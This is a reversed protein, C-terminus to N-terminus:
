EEARLVKTSHNEAYTCQSCSPIKYPLIFATAVAFTAVIGSRVLLASDSKSPFSLHPLALVVAHNKYPQLQVTPSQHWKQRWDSVIQHEKDDVFVKM